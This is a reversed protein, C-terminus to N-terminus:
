PIFAKAQEALPPSLKLDLAKQASAAAAKRDGLDHAIQAAHLHHVAINPAIALAKQIVERADTTKKQKWLVVALTDLFNPNEAEIELAERVLKEAEALSEADNKEMALCYAVNNLLQPNKGYRSLLEQYLDLANKYLAQSEYLSALQLGLPLSPTESYAKRLEQVAQETDGQAKLLAALARYPEPWQPDRLAAQRYAREADDLRRQAHYLRGLEFYGLPLDPRQAILRKFADEAGQPDKLSMKLRGLAALMVVDSPDIDLGKQALQLAEESRREALFYELLQARISKAQPDRELARKLTDIATSQKGQLYQVRALLVYAEMDEPKGVVAQALHLEANALEQRHLLIKGLLLHADTAAQNKALIEQCLAQAEDLRGEAAFLSAKAVLFRNKISEQRTKHLHDDLTRVAADVNKLRAYTQALLIAPEPDDPVLPALRELVHRAKPLDSQRLAFGARERLFAPEDPLTDFVTGAEDHYGMEELIRAQLLRANPDGNLATVMQRLQEQAENKEGSYAFYRAALVYSKPNQPDMARWSAVAKHFAEADKLLYYAFATLEAAEPNQRAEPISDLSLVAEEPKKMALLARARVLAAQLRVGEPDRLRQLEDLAQEPRGGQALLRAIELRAEDLEPKLELARRFAGQAKSIEESALYARALAMIAPVHKPDIALANKYQLVARAPDGKALYSDGSALFSAIKEERSSCGFCVVGSVTALFLLLLFATREFFGRQQFPDFRREM